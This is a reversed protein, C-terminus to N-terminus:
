QLHRSEFTISYNNSFSNNECTSIIISSGGDVTNGSISVREYQQLQQQQQPQRCSSTNGTEDMTDRQSTNRKSRTSRGSDPSIQISSSQSSTTSDNVGIANLYREVDSDSINREYTLESQDRSQKATPRRIDTISMALFMNLMEMKRKYSKKFTNTPWLEEKGDDKYYKTFLNKITKTGPIKKLQNSNSIHLNIISQLHKVSARINAMEEINEDNRMSSNTVEAAM